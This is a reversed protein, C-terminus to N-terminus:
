AILPAVITESPHVFLAAVITESPHVAQTISQVIARYRELARDVYNLSVVGHRLPQAGVDEAVKSMRTHVHESLEFVCSM